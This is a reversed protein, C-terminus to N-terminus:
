LIVEFGSSLFVLVKETVPRGTMAQLAAAYADIQMRYREAREAEGGRKVRDTKFDLLVLGGGSQYFCDVVGQLLVKEGHPLALGPIDGNQILLSFKQERRLGKAAILTKGRPSSFFSVITGIDVALVQDQTLQKEHLLRRLESDVGSTDVCKAFDAFQLFLHAATGHQTATEKSRGQWPAANDHTFEDPFRRKIGTATMKSPTDVAEPFPYVWEPAPPQVSAATERPLPVDGTQAQEATVVSWDPSRTKLLWAAVSSQLILDGKSVTLSPQSDTIKGVSLILRKEARTMAVYLLRLEEARTEGDMVAQVARYSPTPTEAGGDRKKMGLGLRPHALLRAHTDQLNLRKDLGAVVVVPFELGKASHISLIRVGNAPTGAAAPISRDQKRLWDAAGRLCGQYERLFEPLLLLNECAAPSVKRPLGCDAMFRAALVYPPLDAALARWTQFLSFFAAIKPTSSLQLCDCLPGPALLRLEALEDPTCAVAPSRLVSLFAIDNRANDIAELASIVTQIEPRDFYGGGSPTACTLGEAELANKYAQLRAKPSRMLVVCDGASAEGSNILQRLRRAVREPEGGDEGAILLEVPSNDKEESGSILFENEKLMGMEPCDIRSFVHNVADLIAKRSRFNKTLLIKNPATQLKKSFIEPEAMQFRYISQRTDGVYFLNESDRSLATVIADQLPNIDQVEDVLIETFRAPPKDELLNLAIREADTFDLVALRLKESMLNEDFLRVADALGMLLPKLASADKRHTEASEFVLQKIKHTLAHKWRNRLDKFADSCGSSLREFGYGEVFLAATDWDGGRLVSLLKELELLDKEGTSGGDTRIYDQHFTEAICLAQDLLLPQWETGPFAACKEALWGMPDKHCRTKQWIHLILAGLIYDGREDGYTEACPHFFHTPDGEAREYLEDLTEDLIRARLLEMEASDGVRYGNPLGAPVANELIIERCYADLTGIKATYVRTLQERLHSNEPDSDSLERLRSFIRGRLEGAAARTYTIILFEDIHRPQEPHAVYGMLREVLVRTKGAGAAASVLVTKNRLDIAQQQEATTKMDM